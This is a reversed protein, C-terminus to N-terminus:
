TRNVITYSTIWYFFSTRSEVADLCQGNGRAYSDLLRTSRVALATAINVHVIKVRRAYSQKNAGVYMLSKKIFVCIDVSYVVQLLLLYARANM